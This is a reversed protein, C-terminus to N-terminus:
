RPLKKLVAEHIKYPMPRGDVNIVQYGRKKLQAIIPLTREKYEKIRTAFVEPNDVSRKILKGGCLSCVLHKHTKETYLMANKCTSCVRRNKNRKIAEKPDIKLLVPFINKKGYEKELLHILGKTKSNGFAEYLTRPSGSFVISFDAEAVEKTKEKTIKLVFSPTVLVGSDFNKIEKKVGPKNKNAPDHLYQELYKGTDFHIFGRKWSLLNAQTGKGAGPPGYFMVAIKSMSINYLNNGRISFWFRKIFISAKIPTRQKAM